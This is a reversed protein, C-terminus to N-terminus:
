NNLELSPYLDNGGFTHHPSNLSMDLMGIDRVGDLGGTQQILVSHMKIILETTLRKM